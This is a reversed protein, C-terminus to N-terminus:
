LLRSGIEIIVFVTSSFFAILSIFRPSNFCNEVKPQQAKIRWLALNIVSFVILMILSTLEALSALNGILAMILVILGAIVTAVVPTQTISNVRGLFSPLQHRSSLGHIVRSAMIIQILSGNIIALISIVSIIQASQGTHFTYLTALPAQSKALEQPAISLIALLMILIYLITTIILTLFIAMPLNYKVNKVEEAVDVMDEFGIFAYFALLAGSFIIGLSTLNFDPILLNSLEPLHSIAGKSIYIMWILGGVEILTILSALFVSEAIGYIALATLFLAILIITINTDINILQQIYGSFANLLAAASVLGAFIVLIGIFLAFKSSHFGQQTYLAAGATYPYRCSLEAFSLATLGALIAATLFAIPALYGAQNALEGVLAYIGAGITTGLGYLILQPLSLSRKLTTKM